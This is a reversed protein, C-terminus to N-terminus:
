LLSVDFPYDAQVPLKTINNTSEMYAANTGTGIIIGIDCKGNHEFATAVQTGVTDNLIATVRAKVNHESLANEFLEVVDEGIVGTASFGKTWRILTARKLSKQDMPYSFTFGLPLHKGMLNYQTCFEEVKSALFDFLEDATSTMVTTPVKFTRQQILPPVGAGTAILLMVRLNTGGLDVALYQGTEHGSPLRPVFSPLMALSSPRGALGNEMESTFHNRVRILLMDDVHFCKATQSFVAAADPSLLRMLDNETPAWKSLDDPISNELLSKHGNMECVKGASLAGIDSLRDFSSSASVSDAVFLPLGLM